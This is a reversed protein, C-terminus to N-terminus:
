NSHLRKKNSRTEMGNGSDEREDLGRYETTSNSCKSSRWRDELQLGYQFIVLLFVMDTLPADLWQICLQDAQHHKSFMSAIYFDGLLHLM